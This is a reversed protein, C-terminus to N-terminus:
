HKGTTYFRGDDQIATLKKKNYSLVTKKIRLYVLNFKTHKNFLVFRYFLSADIWFYKNLPRTTLM